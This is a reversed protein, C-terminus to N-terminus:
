HSQEFKPEDWVAVYAMERGWKAILFPDAVYKNHILESVEFEVNPNVKRIALAYNLAFQPIPKTYGKLSTTRWDYDLNIGGLIWILIGGIGGTGLLAMVYMLYDSIDTIKITSHVAWFGCMILSTHLLARAYVWEAKAKKHWMYRQVSRFSFPAVDASRLITALNASYGEESSANSADYGLVMRCQQFFEGGIDTAETAYDLDKLSVRSIGKDITIM